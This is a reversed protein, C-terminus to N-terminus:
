DVQKLLAWKQFALNEAAAAGTFLSPFMSALIEDYGAAMGGVQGRYGLEAGLLQPTAATMYEALRSSFEKGLGFKTEETAGSATPDWGGRVQGGVAQQFKTALEGRPELMKKSFTEGMAELQPQIISGLPKTAMEQYQKWLDEGQVRRAELEPVFFQEMIRKLVDPDGGWVNSEAQGKAGYM